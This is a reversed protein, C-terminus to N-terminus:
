KLNGIDGLKAQKIIKINKADDKVFTLSTTYIEGEGIMDAKSECFDNLCRSAEQELFSDKRYKWLFEASLIALFLFIFSLYEM